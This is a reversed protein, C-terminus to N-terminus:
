IHILSLFDSTVYWDGKKLQMLRSLEEAPLDKIGTYLTPLRDPQIHTLKSTCSSLVAIFQVWKKLMAPNQSRMASHIERHICPPSSLNLLHVLDHSEMTYLRLVM